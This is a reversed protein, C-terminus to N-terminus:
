KARGTIIITVQAVDIGNEAAFRRRFQDVYNEEARASMEKLEEATLHVSWMALKKLNGVDHGLNKRMVQDIPIFVPVNFRGGSKLAARARNFVRVLPKKEFAYVDAGGTDSAAPVAVVVLDVAHLTRWRGNRQPTFSLAREQSSKMAVDL